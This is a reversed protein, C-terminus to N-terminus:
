RITSSASANWSPSSAASRCTEWAPIEDIRETLLTDPPVIGLEKQRTLIQERAADWGMDFKGKYKDIHSDPAHHPSHMSGSAWLMMFPLNPKISKHGTIWEIARDALDQDLHVSKRYPEPTHDNWMVPVFQHVDAAMFTYAHQFGEGSPWRDFPGVQSVEYLPTHDWKGLAYNVYGAEQLYNAVSKASPPMVANYGPFGMATLAHSGLGISHPNRGAMLSARSPSCLATTHFNNFRLGNDALRDINPTEILSGFSGIQAFGVDDLLFIIVNPADPAPEQYPAWWEESDEYSKALVGGFGPVTKKMVGDVTTIGSAPPPPASPTAPEPTPDPQAV